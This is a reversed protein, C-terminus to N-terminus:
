SCRPCEPKKRRCGCNKCKKFNGTINDPITEPLSIAKGNILSDAIKNRGNKLIRGFTPRSIKMRLAAEDQYLGLFDALRVAELEDWSLSVEELNNLSIGSPKFYYVLPNVSIRRKKEPRPM